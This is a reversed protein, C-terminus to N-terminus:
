QRRMTHAMAKWESLMHDSCVTLVNQNPHGHRRSRAFRDETIINSAACLAFSDKVFLVAEASLAAEQSPFKQKFQLTFGDTVPVCCPNLSVVDAAVTDRLHEHLLGVLRWPWERFPSVCRMFVHGMYKISATAMTDLSKQCWAQGPEQSAIPIWHTHGPNALLLWLNDLLKAVPSTTPSCLPIVTSSGTVLRAQAFFNGLLPLAPQMCCAAVSMKLQTEGHDLFVATRNMRGIREKRFSIETRPGLGEGVSHLLHMLEVREQELDSRLMKVFCAAINHFSLAFTWWVLPPYLKTWRSVAPVPPRTALFAVTLTSMVLEAADGRSKCECDLGCYHVVKSSDRWDGPCVELLKSRAERKRTMAASNGQSATSRFAYPAHPQSCCSRTPELALPLLAGAALTPIYSRNCM